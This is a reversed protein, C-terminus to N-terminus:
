CCDHPRRFREGEKSTGMALATVQVRVDALLAPPRQRIRIMLGAGDHVASSGKDRLFDQGEPALVPWLGLGTLV